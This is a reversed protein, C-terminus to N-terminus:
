ITGPLGAGVSLEYVEQYPGTYPRWGAYTPTLLRQWEAVIGWGEPLWKGKIRAEWSYSSWIRYSMTLTAITIGARQLARAILDVGEMMDLSSLNFGCLDIHVNIASPTSFRASNLTRVVWATYPKFTADEKTPGLPFCCVFQLNKLAQFPRLDTFSETLQDPEPRPPPPQTERVKDM